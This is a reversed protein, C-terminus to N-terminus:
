QRAHPVFKVYVYHLKKYILIKITTLLLHFHRLKTLIVISRVFWLLLGKGYYILKLLAKLVNTEIDELTAKCERKEKM